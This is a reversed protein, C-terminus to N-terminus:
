PSKLSEDPGIGQDNNSLVDTNTSLLIKDVVVGDERMWLYFTYKGPQPILLSTEKDAYNRQWTFNSANFGTLGIGEDFTVARGNLGVHVSDNGSYEDGGQSVNDPAFGRIFVYYTGPTHFEIDYLLAPGNAYNEPQVNHDPLAQLASVGSYGNITKIPQWEISSAEGAGPKLGTFNEAEMVVLGNQEQFVENSAQEISNQDSLLWSFGIAFLILVGGLIGLGLARYGKIEFPPIKGIIALAIFIVGFIAFVVTLPNTIFIEIITPLDM